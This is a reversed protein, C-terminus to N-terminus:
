CAQDGSSCLSRSRKRMVMARRSAQSGCPGGPAGPPLQRVARGGPRDHPGSTPEAAAAGAGGFPLILVFGDAWPLGHCCGPQAHLSDCGVLAAFLLPLDAPSKMPAQLAQEKSQQDVGQARAPLHCHLQLVPEHSTLPRLHSHLPTGATAPNHKSSM